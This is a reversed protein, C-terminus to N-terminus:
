QSFGALPCEDVLNKPYPSTSYSGVVLVRGVMPAITPSLNGFVMDRELGLDVWNISSKQNNTCGTTNTVLQNVIARTLLFIMNSPKSTKGLWVM